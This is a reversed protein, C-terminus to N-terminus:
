IKSIKMENLSVMENVLKIENNIISTNENLLVDRQENLKNTYNENLNEFTM